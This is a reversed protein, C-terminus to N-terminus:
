EAFSALVRRVEERLAESDQLDKKAGLVQLVESRVKPDSKIFRFGLLRAAYQRVMPNTDTQFTNSVANIAKYVHPATRSIHGQNTLQSKNCTVFCIYLKSLAELRVDRSEDKLRETFTTLLGSNIDLPAISELAQLRVKPNDDCSFYALAQNISELGQIDDSNRDLDLFNRNNALLEILKLKTDPDTKFEELVYPISGPTEICINAISSLLTNTSSIGRPRDRLLCVAANVAPHLRDDEIGKLLSNNIRGGKLTQALAKIVMTSPNSYGPGTINTKNLM